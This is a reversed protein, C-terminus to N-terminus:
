HLKELLLFTCVSLRSDKSSKCPGMLARPLTAVTENSLYNGLRLHDKFDVGGSFM